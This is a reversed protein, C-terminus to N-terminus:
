ASVPEVHLFGGKPDAQSGPELLFRRGPDFLPMEPERELIRDALLQGMYPSITYGGRVCGIVFANEMGPLPGVLPMLDPVHAELGLWTRVIRARRLAPVAFAALRLNGILNEPVIDHGGRELNGGGQWGGGILVTGNESQKLTLLGSAVGIIRKLLPEVRETVSVQNIRYGIPIELGLLSVLPGLWAGAALILRRGAVREGSASRVLFGDRTRDIAVVEFRDHIVAGAQGLAARYVRGSIASNAYGDLPCYSGLIARDGLAPELDQLAAGEVFEIPCGAERKTAMRTRLMDAEDDTFAITLGGKQRFGIDMGLREATTRWLDWGKMAYPVLAARKIQISLTGANVGSAGMGLGRKDLVAVKLGAGALHWSAVSGMLGGGITVVDFHDRDSV